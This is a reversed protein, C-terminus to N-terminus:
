PLVDDHLYAVLTWIDERPLQGFGPMLPGQEGPIGAAIRYYLQVPATGAKIAGAALDAPPVALGGAAPGDGRGAEGHCVACSQRYLERGRQAMAADLEPVPGPEIRPGPAPHDEWLADVVAVLSDIQPESLQGFGPMGASALGHVIVHRLDADTAVGNPTSVFRFRGQALNRPPQAFKPSNRSYVEARGDLGHCRACQSVYLPYGQQVDAKGLVPVASALVAEPADEVPVSDLVPGRLWAVAVFLAAVAIAGYTLVAQDNRLSLVWRRQFKRAQSRMAQYPRALYNVPLTWMHVLKTFPFYAAFAFATAIHIKSLLPAAVMLEPEPALRFLSAFWAGAPYAVGWIRDVVGQYLGIGIIGILFLHVIYDDSQSLARLEPVTIRRVLAIVSGALAMGGGALAFWFFAGIWAGWGRVAGIYGALHGAILLFLGWHLLLSAVGLLDRTFLSTARTTVEFPRLRMRIFPVVFFLTLAIYPFVAWFLTDM